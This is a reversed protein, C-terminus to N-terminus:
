GAKIETWVQDWAAANAGLDKQYEVLAKQAGEPMRTPNTMLPLAAENPSGYGTGSALKAAVEPRM